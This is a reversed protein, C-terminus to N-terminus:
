DGKCKQIRGDLLQWVLSEPVFSPRNAIRISLKQGDEAYSISLKVGQYEIAGADGNPPDIGMSRLDNKLCDLTARAIGSYDKSNAM